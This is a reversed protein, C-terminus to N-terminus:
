FENWGGDSNKPPKAPSPKAGNSANAGPRGAVVAKTAAPGLSATPKKGTPMVGKSATGSAGDEADVRFFQVLQSMARAQESLSEAAAAAEEVMAANQQTGKDMTTVAANIQDIGSSQEESAANIEGIIDTVKKVSGVIEQLTEGSRNVLKAGQEVKEQSDQILSKIEKAASASRQALNRVEAAVVAFGRGEDGARAAEVAANLALMNTQFAIQEIVSIIDAVKKSSETIASMADVAAGVVQGGKEASDRASTALQNAQTANGANQKVTATMEELSAATEELSSSQEQTRRNLNSNGESIDQAASNITQAAETIRLMTNRLTAMSLNLQERLQAFEGHFDGEMVPTLNGQSMEEIVRTAERIPTVVANLIANVGEGVKRVFGEYKGANIREDLKGATAAVILAEIQREADRQETVDSWELTNGVYKGAADKIASVKIQFILDGVKIDATHPLNSPDALMRRQHEPHKHFIDICTGVIKAASFRPFARRIESERRTLLQKTTENVYTIVLDRDVMMIATTVGEIANQLRAVDNEKARIATVDYWELGSGVYVGSSDTIATVNIEFILKGVHIDARHPLNNADALMRRQHEPRAHFIDICTGVIKNPDFAPYVARFEAANKKILDQTAKNAYTIVLDRDVMMVATSISGLARVRLDDAIYGLGSDESKNM